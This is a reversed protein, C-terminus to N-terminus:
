ILDFVTDAVVTTLDKLQDLSCLEDTKVKKDAPQSMNIPPKRFSVNPVQLLYKKELNYVCSKNNRKKDYNLNLQLM